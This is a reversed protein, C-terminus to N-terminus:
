PASYGAAMGPLPSDALGATQLTEMWGVIRFPDAGYASLPNRVFKYFADATDAASFRYKFRLINRRAHKLGARLGTDNLCQLIGGVVIHSLVPM